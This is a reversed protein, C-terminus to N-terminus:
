FDPLAIRMGQKIEQPMFDPNAKLLRLASTNFKQAVTTLTENEQLLYTKGPDHPTNKILLTQGEKLSLLDSERNYEKLERISVGFRRIIDSLTDQKEIVYLTCDQGASMGKCWGRNKLTSYSISIAKLFQCKNKIQPIM